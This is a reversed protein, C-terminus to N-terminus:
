SIKFAAKLRAAAIAGATVAALALVAFPFEPVTRVGQIEVQHDGQPVFFDIYLTKGDGRVSAEQMEGDMMVMVTQNQSLQPIKLSLPSGSPPYPRIGFEISDTSNEYRLSSVQAVANMSYPIFRGDDTNITTIPDDYDLGACSYYFVDSRIAPDPIAAFEIKEGSKIVPIVDSRVTELQSKHDPSHVGAFVSTNYVDFPGINEITGVFAREEGVAMSGYNLVLMSNYNSVEVEKVDMIFPDGAITGSDLVLKFPSDTLPWIVRGYTPAQLTRGDDTEVGVTVQVPVDAFNRVTGVVNVRGESDVFSSKLIIVPGDFAHATTFLSFIFVFVLACVALMRM